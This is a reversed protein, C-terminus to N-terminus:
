KHYDVIEVEYAHNERWEFCIRYQDNIWTSYAGERSGRLKELRNGPPERLDSLQTAADLILLNRLAMRQLHEPLHPHRKGHFLRETASDRFTQIM